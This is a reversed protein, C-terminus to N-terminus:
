MGNKNITYKYISSEIKNAMDEIIVKLQEDVYAYVTWCNGDVRMDKSIKTNIDGISHIVTGERNKIVVDKFVIEVEGPASMGVIMISSVLGGIAGFQTGVMGTTQATRSFERSGFFRELKGTVYFDSSDKKNITVEKFSVKKKIHNAILDTIQVSVAGNDYYKEINVCQQKRDLYIKKSDGWLIVNAWTEKRIDEISQIDIIYKSLTNDNSQKIDDMNYTIKHTTACGCLISILLLLLALGYFILKRYPRGSLTAEIINM